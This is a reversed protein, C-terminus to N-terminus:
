AEKIARRMRWVAAVKDAREIATNTQAALWREYAGENARERDWKEATARANLRDMERTDM